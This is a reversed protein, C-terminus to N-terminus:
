RSSEKSCVHMVPKTFIGLLFQINFMKFAYKNTKLQFLKKECLLTCIFDTKTAVGLSVSNILLVINQSHPCVLAFNDREM